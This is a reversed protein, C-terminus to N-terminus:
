RKPKSLLLALRCSEVSSGCRSVHWVSNREEKNLEVNWLENTWCVMLFSTIYSTASTLTYVYGINLYLCVKNRTFIWKTVLRKQLLNGLLWPLVSEFLKWFTAWLVCNWLNNVHWINQRATKIIKVFKHEIQDNSQV